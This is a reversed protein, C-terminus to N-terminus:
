TRGSQPSPLEVRAVQHIRHLDVTTVGNDDTAFITDFKAGVVVEKHHYSSRTHVVQSFTDDFAKLLILFEADCEELTRQTTGYLPSSEDIPHVVTWTLPFFTVQTRELSLPFYQRRLQGNHREKRVFLVQAEVEILQNSRENAIRFEFATGGRYPAIVAHRSFIIRAQPRSFRGYFLGAAMAFYLWGSMSEFTAVANALFGTPSIRGYGVTTFTQTSFFFSEWFQEFLSGVSAGDLHKLGILLYLVAYVVNVLVFSGVLLLNFRWWSTSLLTHYASLSRLFSIGRRTVNFSGDRNILRQAQGSVKTGFGLDRFDDQGPDKITRNNFFKKV